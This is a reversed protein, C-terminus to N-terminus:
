RKYNQEAKELLEKLKDPDKLEEVRKEKKAQKVINYLADIRQTWAPLDKIPPLGGQTYIIKGDDHEKDFYQIHSLGESRLVPWAVKFPLRMGLLPMVPKKKESIIIEFCGTDDYSPNVAFLGLKFDGADYRIQFKRLGADYKRKGPYLVPMEQKSLIGYNVKCKGLHRLIYLAKEAVDLQRSELERVREKVAPVPKKLYEKRARRDKAHFSKAERRGAIVRDIIKLADYGESEEADLNDPEAM